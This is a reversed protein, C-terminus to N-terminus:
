VMLVLHLQYTHILLPWMSTGVPGLCLICATGLGMVALCPGTSGLKGLSMKVMALTLNHM